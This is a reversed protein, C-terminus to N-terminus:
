LLSLLLVGGVWLLPVVVFVVFFAAEALSLKGLGFM